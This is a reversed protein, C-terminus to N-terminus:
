MWGTVIGAAVVAGFFLTQAPRMSRLVNGFTSKMAFYYIALSIIIGAVLYYVMLFLPYQYYRTLDFAPFEPITGVFGVPLFTAPTAIIFMSLFTFFVLFGVRLALLGRDRISHWLEKQTWITYAFLAFLIVIVETAQGIHFTEGSFHFFANIFDTISFYAYNTNLGGIYHDILPPLIIIWWFMVVFNTVRRVGRGSFASLLFILGLFVVIYFSVHHAISFIWPHPTTVFAQDLLLYELLDRITAVIIVYVFIAVISLRDKELWTVFRDVRETFRTALDTKEAM